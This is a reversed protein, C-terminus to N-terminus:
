MLDKYEACYDKRDCAGCFKGMWVADFQEMIQGVMAEDTTVFGSEFNRRRDSKAGMGAGTLNASGSYAFTGDIVVCKFHTRPCLIQELGEVLSPYRDFDERFAPGPEKAHILRISVGSDVLGALVGLFPMMRHGGWHVYLDKMDATGIWVFQEAAPVASCIVRDYIQRDTVFETLSM